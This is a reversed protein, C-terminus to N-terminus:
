NGLILKEDGLPVYNNNEFEIFQEWKEKCCDYQGNEYDLLEIDQTITFDGLIEKIKSNCECDLINHAGRKSPIGSTDCMVLANPNAQKVEKVIKLLSLLYPPRYQNKKWLMEIITGKHISAPCFSIRSSGLEICKNASAIADNIADQETIFPPKILIYCKMGVDYKKAVNFANIITENSVGKHIAINRIQENFSEIGVGIEINIDKLNDRIFKMNEDNIFEARSEIAVEKINYGMERLEYIKSFIYKQADKTIEFEDLFSGSTFMKISFGKKFKKNLTKINEAKEEDTADEKINLNRELAQTFQKIINETSIDVPSADMLYSCMTCGGSVYAWKCGKTRLIITFSNGMTQDVFIDDQIWTAIARDPDIEKRKRLQRARNEKLFKEMEEMDIFKTM